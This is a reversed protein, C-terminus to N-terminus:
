SHSYRRRLGFAVSGSVLGGGSSWITQDALVRDGSVLRLRIGHTLHSEAVPPSAKIFVENHDGLAVEHDRIFLTQGRNIPLDAIDVAMGNLRLEFPAKQELTQLAFPDDEVSFTPTLEISIRQSSTEVAAVAVSETVFGRDRQEVYLYLGGVFVVWIIICLLFRM